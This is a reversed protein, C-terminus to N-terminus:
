LLLKLTEAAKGECNRVATALNALFGHDVSSIRAKGVEMIINTSTQMLEEAFGKTVLEHTIYGLLYKLYNDHLKKDKVLLWVDGVKHASRQAQVISKTYLSDLSPDDLLTYLVHMASICKDDAPCLNINTYFYAKAAEAKVHWEDPACWALDRIETITNYYYEETNVKPVYADKVPMEVLYRAALPKFGAWDDVSPLYFHNNHIMYSVEAVITALVRFMSPDNNDAFAVLFLEMETYYVTTKVTNSYNAKIMLKAMRKVLLHEHKFHTTIFVRMYKLVYLKLESKLETKYYKYLKDYAKNLESNVVADKVKDGTLLRWFYESIYREVIYSVRTTPYRTILLKLTTWVSHVALQFLGPNERCGNTTTVVERLMNDLETLPFNKSILMGSLVTTIAPNFASTAM